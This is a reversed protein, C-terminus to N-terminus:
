RAAPRVSHELWLPLRVKAFRRSALPMIGLRNLLQEAVSVKVVGVGIQVNVCTDEFSHECARESIHSAM